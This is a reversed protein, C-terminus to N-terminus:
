LALQRSGAGQGMQSVKEQGRQEKPGQSTSWSTPATASSPLQDEPVPWPEPERCVWVDPAPTPHPRPLFEPEMPVKLFDFQFGAWPFRYNDLM